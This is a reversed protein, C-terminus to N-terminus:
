RRAACTFEVFGKALFIPARVRGTLRIGNILAVEPLSDIIPPERPQDSQRWVLHLVELPAVELDVADVWRQAPVADDRCRHGRIGHARLVDIGVPFDM